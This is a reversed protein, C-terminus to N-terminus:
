FRYLSISAFIHWAPFTTFQPVHEGTLLPLGELKADNRFPIGGSTSKINSHPKEKKKKEATLKDLTTISSM